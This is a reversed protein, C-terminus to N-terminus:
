VFNNNNYRIKPIVEKKVSSDIMDCKLRLSFNRSLIDIRFGNQTNKSSM